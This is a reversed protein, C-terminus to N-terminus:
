PGTSLALPAPVGITPTGGYRRAPGADAASPMRTPQPQTADAPRPRKPEVLWVREALDGAALFREALLSGAAAHDAMLGTLEPVLADGDPRAQAVVSLRTPSVSTQDLLSAHRGSTDLVYARGGTMGAGFNAGIPGLVVVVGGTM